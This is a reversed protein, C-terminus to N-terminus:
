TPVFFAIYQITPFNLQQWLCPTYELMGSVSNSFPIKYASCFYCHCSTNALETLISVYSKYFLFINKIRNSMAATYTTKKRSVTTESLPSKAYQSQCITHLIYSILAARCLLLKCTYTSKSKNEILRIKFVFSVDCGSPLLSQKILM